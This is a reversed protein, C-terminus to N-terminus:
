KDKSEIEGKETDFQEKSILGENRKKLLKEMRTAMDDQSANRRSKYYAASDTQGNRNSAARMGTYFLVGFIILLLSGTCLGQPLTYERVGQINNGMLLAIFIVVGSGIFYLIFKKWDNDVYLHSSGPVLMNFLGALLPNRRKM